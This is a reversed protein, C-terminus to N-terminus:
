KIISTGSVLAYNMYAPTAPLTREVLISTTEANAEKASSSISYQAATAASLGEVKIKSENFVPTIRVLSPTLDATLDALSFDHRFKYDGSSTNNATMFLNSAARNIAQSGDCGDIAYHRAVSHGSPDEGLISVLLAATNTDCTNNDSWYIKLSTSIGTLPLQLTYGEDVTMALLNSQRIDYQRDTERLSSDYANTGGSQEYQYIDNLAQEVGSEATSFTRAKNEDQISIEVDKSTRSAISLGVTLIVIMLLIVVIGAQGSQQRRDVNFFCM